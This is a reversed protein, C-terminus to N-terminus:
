HQNPKNDPTVNADTGLLVAVLGHRKPVYRVGQLASLSRQAMRKPPVYSTSRM